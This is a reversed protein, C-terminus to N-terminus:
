INGAANFFLIFMLLNYDWRTLRLYVMLTQKLLLVSSGNLRFLGVIFLQFVGRFGLREGLDLLNNWVWSDNTLLVRHADNVNGSLVDTSRFPGTCRTDVLKVNANWMHVRLSNVKLRSVEVQFRFAGETGRQPLCACQRWLSVVPPVQSNNLPHPHIWPRRVSADPRSTDLNYM